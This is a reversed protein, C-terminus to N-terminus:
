ETGRDGRDKRPLHHQSRRDNRDAVAYRTAVASLCSLNKAHSRRKAYNAFGHGAFGARLLHAQRLDFGAMNTIYGASFQAVFFTRSRLMKRWLYIRGYRM